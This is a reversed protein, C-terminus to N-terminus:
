DSTEFTNNFGTSLFVTTSNAMATTLSGLRRNSAQQWPTQQCGLARCSVAGASDIRCATPTVAHCLVVEPNCNFQHMTTPGFTAIAVNPNSTCPHEETMVNTFSLRLDHSAAFYVPELKQRGTRPRPPAVRDPELGDLAVPVEIAAEVGAAKRKRGANRPGAKGAATTGSKGRLVGRAPSLGVCARPLLGRATEFGTSKYDPLLM